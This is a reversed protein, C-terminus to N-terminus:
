LTQAERIEKNMRCFIYLRLKVRKKYKKREGRRVKEEKKEEIRREKRREGEVREREGERMQGIPFYFHFTSLYIYLHFSNPSALAPLSFITVIINLQRVQHAGSVFNEM